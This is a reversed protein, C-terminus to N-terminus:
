KTLLSVTLLNAKGLCARTATHLWIESDGYISHVTKTMYDTSEPQGGLSIGTFLEQKDTKKSKYPFFLCVCTKTNKFATKIIKITGINM